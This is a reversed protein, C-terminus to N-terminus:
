TQFSNTKKRTLYFSRQISHECVQYSHLESGILKLVKLNDVLLATKAIEHLHEAEGFGTEKDWEWLKERALQPSGLLLPWTKIGHCVKLNRMMSFRKRWKLVKTSIATTGRLHPPLPLTLHCEWLPGFARTYHRKWITEDDLATKWFSCVENLHALTDFPMWEFLLHHLEVPLIEVIGENFSQSPKM